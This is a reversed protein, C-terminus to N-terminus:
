LKSVRVNRTSGFTHPKERERLTNNTVVVCPTSKSVERNKGFEQRQLITSDRSATITQIISGSGHQSNLVKKNLILNKSSIQDNSSESTSKRSISSSSRTTGSLSDYRENNISNASNATDRIELGLAAAREKEANRTEDKMAAEACEESHYYSIEQFSEPLDPLLLAIIERFRPRLKPQFQTCAVMLRYLKDSCYPPRELGGGDLVYKLVDENSKGPYPQESLTAIEWLVVGYSWVDTASTFVGDRLSEPPMWRVPLMGKGGKRYYDSAYVDRTMGFDGIKVIFDGSVMCNRAALDRHVFKKDSLYLMGDAIEAAMKHFQVDSPRNPNPKLYYDPSDADERLSRLHNKLDGNAMLEMIVLPPLGQSVIGLLRVVHNCDFQKMICAENLFEQRERFSAKENVTKVAVKTKLEGYIIDAAEGLYVMGFAGKGLEKLLAIKEREFEWDDPIYV